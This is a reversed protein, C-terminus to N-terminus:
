MRSITILNACNEVRDENSKPSLRHGGTDDKSKERRRGERGARKACIPLSPDQFMSVEFLVFSLSFTLSVNCVLLSLRNWKESLPRTTDYRSASAGSRREIGSPVHHNLLLNLIWSIRSGGQNAPLSDSSQPSSPLVEEKACDTYILERDPTVSCLKCPIM